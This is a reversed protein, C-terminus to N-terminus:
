GTESEEGLDGSVVSDAYDRGCRRDFEQPSSERTLEVAGQM